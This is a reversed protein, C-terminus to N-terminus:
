YLAPTTGRTAGFSPLSSSYASGGYSPLYPLMALNNFGSQLGQNWANASGVIGSAQAEGVGLQADAIGRAAGAGFQGTQASAGQGLQALGALRGTYNGFTQTALGQGFKTLEKLQSGSLLMGRSAASADRAKTGQEFAFRYDPSREFAALANDSFPQGGEPNSPTPLGYLDALSYVAGEGVGRYPALDARTREYMELQTDAAREAAREQSAAARKAASATKSAGYISAGISATALIASIPM